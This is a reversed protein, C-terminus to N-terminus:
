RLAGVVALLAPVVVTGVITWVVLSTGTDGTPVHSAAHLERNSRTVEDLWAPGLPLRAISTQPGVRVSLWGHTTRKVRPNCKRCARTVEDAAYVVSAASM